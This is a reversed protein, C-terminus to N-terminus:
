VTYLIYQITDGELLLGGQRRERRPRSALAMGYNSRTIGYVFVLHVLVSLRQYYTHPQTRQLHRPAQKSEPKMGDSREGERGKKGTDDTWIHFQRHREIRESSLWCMDTHMHSHSRGDCTTSVIYALRSPRSRSGGQIPILPISIPIEATPCKTTTRQCQRCRQLQKRDKKSQQIASRKPSARVRSLM